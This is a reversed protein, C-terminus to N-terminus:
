HKGALVEKLRALWLVDSLVTCYINQLVYSIPAFKYTQVFYTRQQTIHKM